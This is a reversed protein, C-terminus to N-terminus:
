YHVAGCSCSPNIKFIKWFFNIIKYVIQMLWSENHCMCGCAQEGNDFFKHSCNDCKGNNDADEHGLAEYDERGTEERCFVCRYYSSHGAKECTSVEAAQEIWYHDRKEGVGIIVKEGCRLCTYARQEANQCTAEKVVKYQEENILHEKAVGSGNYKIAEPETKIKCNECEYIVYGDKEPTPEVRVYIVLKHTDTTLTKQEKANCNQCTRVQIIGSSCDGGITVWEGFNHASVGETDIQEDEIGCVTCTFTLTGPKQCNEGETIVADNRDVIGDKNKDFNHKGTAVITTASNPKINGCVTCYIAKYGVSGCTAEKIVKYDDAWVHATSTAELIVTKVKTCGAITCAYKEYGNEGCTPKKTEFPTDAWSTCPVTEKSITILAKGEESTPDFEKKGGDDLFFKGCGHCKYYAKTGNTTHTAEVKKIEVLIDHKNADVLSCLGKCVECIDTDTCSYTHKYTYCPSEEIAGCVSCQVMHYWKGDARRAAIKEDYGPEETKMVIKKVGNEETIEKIMYEPIIEGFVHEGNVRIVTGKEKLAKKNAADTANEDYCCAYYIDGTYGNDECTPSLKGVVVTETTAHKTEDLPLVEKKTAVTLGDGEACTSCKYIVEGAELCTAERRSEVVYTHDLQAVVEGAKYLTDCCNYYYDGTYGPAQCSVPKANKLTTATSSHKAADYTGYKARCDKCTALVNCYATGGNCDETQTAVAAITEDCTTCSRTHKNEGEIKSWAGFTHAIKAIEEPKDIETNCATCKRYSTTGTTQCTSPVRAIVEINKHNNPDTEGYPANCEVCVKRDKCNATGGKCNKTDTAPTAVKEDCTECTATHTGDGNSVYTTYVHPIKAITVKKVGYAGCICQTYAEHGETQCTSEVKGFSQMNEHNNPDLPLDNVKTSITTGCGDCIESGTSGYTYCTAPQSGVFHTSQGSHNNYDYNKPTTYGNGCDCTYTTYGEECCTSAVDATVKYNCGVPAGYTGCGNVCKISHTGNDNKQIEDGTFNHGNVTDPNGYEHYAVLPVKCYDCCSQYIAPSVCTAPTDLIDYDHHASWKHTLASIKEAEATTETTGAEDKYFKRCTSCSYYANNGAKECEAAVAPILTMSHAAKAIDETYSYGCVECTYKREGKKECTPATVVENTLIHSEENTTNGCIDCKIAHKEPSIIAYNDTYVHSPGTTELEDPIGDGDSDTTDELETTCDENIWVKKCVSCSWFEKNGEAGCIGDVVVAETYKIEHSKVPIIKTYTTKCVECSYVEYGESTCTAPKTDVADGADLRGNNNFDWDHKEHEDPTVGWGYKGCEDFRECKKYHYGDLGEVIAIDGTFSHGLAPVTGTEIAKKGCVSCGYAVEGPDTCTPSVITEGKDARKHAEIHEYECVSCIRSHNAENQTWVDPFNHPAPTGAVETITIDDTITSGYGSTNWTYSVHEGSNLSKVTNAYNAALSALNVSTGYDYDKTYVVQNNNNIFKLTYTAKKNNLNDLAANYDSVASEIATKWNKAGQGGSGNINYNNPNASVVSAVANKYAEVYSTKYQSPKSKITALDTRIKSLLDNYAKVNVVYISKSATSSWYSTSSQDGYFRWTPKIERLWESSGMTTNFVLHNSFFRWDGGTVGCKISSNTTGDSTLYFGASGIWMMYYFCADDKSFGRWHTSGDRSSFSLGNAGSVITCSCTRVASGNSDVELIVPMRPTTKGDYMLVTEPFWVRVGKGGQDANTVGNFEVGYGVSQTVDVTYVINANSKSLNDVTMHSSQDGTGAFHFTANKTPLTVDNVPVSIQNLLGNNNSQMQTANLDGSASAETPAVFVWASMLMMVVMFLALTKKAYLKSKKM